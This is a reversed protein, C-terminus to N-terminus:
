LSSMSSTWLGSTMDPLADLSTLYFDSRKLGLYFHDIITKIPDPHSTLVIACM